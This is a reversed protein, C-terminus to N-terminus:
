LDDWWWLLRTLSEPDTGWWLLFVPFCFILVVDGVAQKVGKPVKPVKKRSAASM